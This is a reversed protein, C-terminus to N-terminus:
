LAAPPEPEAVPETPVPEPASEIPAARAGGASAVALGAARAAAMQGASGGRAVVPTMRYRRLLESLAGFDIPDAVTSVQALDIAVPDGDFTDAVAGFRDALDSALAALDNTKLSVVILSLAASRLDFAVTPKAAQVVSM